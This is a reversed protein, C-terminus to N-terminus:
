TLVLFFICTILLTGFFSVSVFIFFLFYFIFCVKDCVRTYNTVEEKWEIFSQYEPIKEMTREYLESLFNTHKELDEQLYEFLNKETARSTDLSLYFGYM